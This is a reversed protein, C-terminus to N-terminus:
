TKLHYVPISQSIFSFRFSLNFPAAKEVSENSSYFYVLQGLTPLLDNPGDRLWRITALM